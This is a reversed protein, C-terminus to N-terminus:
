FFFIFDGRNSAQDANNTHIELQAVAGPLKSDMNSNRPDASVVYGKPIRYGGQSTVADHNPNV